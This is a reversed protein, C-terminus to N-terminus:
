PTKFPTVDFKLIKLPIKMTKRSHQKLSAKIGMYDPQEHSETTNQHPDHPVEHSHVLIFTSNSHIYTSYIYLTVMWNTFTLKIQPSTVAM